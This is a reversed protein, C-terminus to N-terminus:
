RSKPNKVIARKYAAVLKDVYAITKVVARCGGLDQMQALRMDPFRKLKLVISPLRKIRQATLATQDINRARGRLTVHFANLPFSHSSRWNNIIDLIQQSDLDGGFGALMRGATNIDQRRYLPKAYALGNVGNPLQV